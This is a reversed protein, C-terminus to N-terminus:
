EFFIDYVYANVYYSSLNLYMPIGNKNYGTLDYTISKINNTGSGNNIGGFYYGVSNMSSDPYIGQSPTFGCYITNYSSAIHSLFKFIITVKQYTNVPVLETSCLGFEGYANSTEYFYLYGDEELVRGQTRGPNSYTPVYGDFLGTVVGDQLFYHKEPSSGGQMVTPIFNLGIIEWIVFSQTRAYFTLGTNTIQYELTQNQYDWLSLRTNAEKLRQIEAKTYFYSNGSQAANDSDRIIYADYANFNVVIDVPTNDTATYLVTEIMGAYTPDGGAADKICYLINDNLKTDPLADYEAKTVEKYSKIQAIKNSDLVSTGNVYVDDVNGSGGGGATLEVWEGNLKIYTMDVTYTNGSVTYQVYLNNNEGQASTPATTGSLVTSGEPAYISTSVGDIIVRALETGSSQIQTIATSPAFLTYLTGDVEIAAVRTGSNLIPTVSVTSGGTGTASIVNNQITIGTGPTLIDQKTLLDAKKALEQKQNLVPM